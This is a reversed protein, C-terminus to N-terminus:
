TALTLLERVLKGICHLTRYRGALFFSVGLFSLRLNVLYPPETTIAVSFGIYCSFGLRPRFKLKKHDPGSSYFRFTHPVYPLWFM